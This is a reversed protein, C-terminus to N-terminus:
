ELADLAAVDQNETSLNCQEINLKIILCGLPGTGEECKRFYEFLFTGEHM